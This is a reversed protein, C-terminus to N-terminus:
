SCDIPALARRYSAALQDAATRVAAEVDGTVGSAIATRAVSEVQATFAKTADQVQQRREPSLDSQADAIRQLDSRISKLGDEAASISSSTLPLSRLSAIQSQIDARAECVRQQATPQEDDGGCAALAPLALLM